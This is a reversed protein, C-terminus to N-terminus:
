PSVEAHEDFSRGAEIRNNGTSRTPMSVAEFTWDGCTCAWGPSRDPIGLQWLGAAGPRYWMEHRTTTM